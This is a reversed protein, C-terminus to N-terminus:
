LECAIERNTLWKKHVERGWGWYPFMERSINVQNWSTAWCFKPYTENASCSTLICIIYSKLDKRSIIKVLAM